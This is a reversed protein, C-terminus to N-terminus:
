ITEILEKTTFKYLKMKVGTDHAIQKAVITIKEVNSPYGSVLQFGQGGINANVIGEGGSDKSLVVYIENIKQTNKPVHYTKKM